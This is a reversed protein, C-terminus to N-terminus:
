ERLKQATKKVEFGYITKFERAVSVCHYGYQTCLKKMKSARKEGGFDRKDDDNLVGIAFSPHKKNGLAYNLMSQDGNSNGIAIVPRKGIEKIISLVKFMKTNDGVLPGRKMVDDPAYQMFRADIYGLQAQSIPTYDRGIVHDNGISPITELAVRAFQRDTGTVVYFSFDNAKLYSILEVMPLYFAEAIKLNSLGDVATNNVFDRAYEDYEDLTMGDFAGAWARFYGDLLGSNSKGQKTYELCSLTFDKLDQPPTFSHDDLVRHLYFMLENAVPAMESYFTGDLDSVAIRDSVKIFNKSQPNTVDAVYAKLDHLLPSDENWYKFNSGEKNVAISAIEEVSASYAENILFLSLGLALAHKILNSPM